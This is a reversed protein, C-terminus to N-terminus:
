EKRFQQTYEAICSQRRWCPSAWPPYFVTPQTSLLVCPSKRKRLLRPNKHGLYPRSSGSAELPSTSVSQSRPQAPHGRPAPQEQFPWSHPRCCPRQGHKGLLSSWSGWMPQHSVHGAALKCGAFGAQGRTRPDKSSNQIRFSWINIQAM